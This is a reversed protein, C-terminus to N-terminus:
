GSWFHEIVGFSWYGDFSDDLFPLNMVDAVELNLNPYKELVRNVTEEAYDVGVVDFGANQLAIVKGCLGCGGELIKTRSNLYKQTIQPYIKSLRMGPDGVIGESWKKDWYESTANKEIVVLRNTDIDIYTKRKM